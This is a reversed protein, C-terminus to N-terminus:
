IDDFDYKKTVKPARLPGETVWSFYKVRTLTSKLTPVELVLRPFKPDLIICPRSRISSKRYEGNKAATKGTHELLWPEHQEQEQQQRIKLCIQTKVM